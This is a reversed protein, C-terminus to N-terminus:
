PRYFRIVRGAALVAENCSYQFAITRNNNRIGVTASAGNNYSANGFDVDQYLVYIDNTGEELQVEFTAGSPSSPYHRIDRWEVTFIRSGPSGNVNYLVQGGGPLYLDDWFAAIMARPGSTSGPLCNNAHAANRTGFHLNGNSSVKVSTYSTGYFSFSFPLSLVVTQDDNTLGTNTTGNIWTRTVTDDCRYGFADPPLGACRGSPTATPASPTNTPTPPIPTNTPPVPTNTPPVPTNTPPVPTNTPPVPTNTPPAPTATATSVYYRIKLGSVLVAQNCSYQLGVSGAANEIGGTASAGNDNADGFLSDQVLVYIDNAGERLQIEFTVGSSSSPYHRIDRWEVTFIRNPAAGTTAYYIAGGGPLYLDDWLAAIMANPAGTNPICVNSYATSATGFHLNGNSSVNVSTYSTGYFSFGFPLNLAVTQDDATLGTNTVGNIWAPNVTDDCRYGFADPPISACRPPVPTPTPPIPTPTPTRTPTPSPGPTPTGIISQVAALADIRGWGYVNNPVGSTSCATVSTPFATNRIVNEIQAVQGRLSPNASVILAVLGTVHPGAMSTGSWTEGSYTNGPLSSNINTGPAVVDPKIISPYLDSPGRSSYGAISETRNGTAGTTFVNNYDGPSRLTACASGENGASVEVFIGANRMNQIITYFVSNNGGFYGWSNNVVDPALAPNPNQGNLDTPALAFQFCETFTADNGSGSDTMNKCGIWKAGPAVGIDNTFPGPGDGGVATGTTHTGHGHGDYPALQSNIADWWNYNHNATSGNWGRYNPRLAPHDWQVGTDLDGVVAGVGTVGLQNWVDDANIWSINWEVVEPVDAGPPEPGIIVDVQIEHNLVVRKVDPRAAIATIADAGAYVQVMNYIWFSKHPIGQARLSALLDAQTRNAVETLTKYVYWGKDEKSKLANAGGTNAQEHMLVLVDAQGRERLRALVDADIKDEARQPDPPASGPQAAVTASLSIALALALALILYHRISM